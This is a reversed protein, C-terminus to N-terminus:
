QRSECDAGGELRCLALKKDLNAKELAAELAKIYWVLDENKKFTPRNVTTEQLLSTPAQRNIIVPDGKTSCASLATLFILILGIKLAQIKM